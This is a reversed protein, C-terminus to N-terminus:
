CELGVVLQLLQEGGVGAVPVGGPEGVGPAEGRESTSARAGLRPRQQDLRALEVRM